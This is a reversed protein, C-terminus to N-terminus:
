LTLSTSLLTISNQVSPKPYWSWGHNLSQSQVIKYTKVCLLNQGICESCLMYLYLGGLNHYCLKWESVWSLRHVYGTWHAAPTHARDGAGWTEAEDPGPGEQTDRWGPEGQRSGGRSAAPCPLTPPIDIDFLGLRLIISLLFCTSLLIASEM